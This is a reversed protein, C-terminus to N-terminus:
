EVLVPMETVPLSKTDVIEMRAQIDGRKLPPYILAAKNKGIKEKLSIVVPKTSNEKWIIFISTKDRFNFQFVRSGPRNLEVVSDFSRLKSTMFQYAYYAPKPRLDFDLLGYFKLSSSNVSHSRFDDSVKWWFVKEVGNAFAIVYRRIVDAAQEEESTAGARVPTGTETIWIPKSRTGSFGYKVLIKRANQTAKEIRSVERYAHIDLIDFYNGAGHKLITSLFGNGEDEIIKRATLGGLLVHSDPDENKIVGYASKLLIAYNKKSSRWFRGCPENEIQWYKVKNKYRKVTQSVFELYEKMSLPMSARAFGGRAASHKTGWSSVSRLTFVMNLGNKYLLDIFNDTDEWRYENNRPEVDMWEIASRHWKVGARLVLNLAESRRHEQKNLKLGRIGFPSDVNSSEAYSLLCVSLLCFAVLLLWVVKIVGKHTM